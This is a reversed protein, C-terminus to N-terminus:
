KEEEMEEEMNELQEDLCWEDVIHEPIFERINESTINDEYYEYYEDHLESDWYGVFGMGCEHYHLEVHVDENEACFKEFAEKPPSWASDFWGEILSRDDDETSESYELGESDVEWKTGWNDLRWSYWDTESEPMPAMTELLGSKEPDKNSKNWLEKIKAKPGEILISNNCWNPM